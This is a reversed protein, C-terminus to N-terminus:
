MRAELTFAVRDTDLNPRPRSSLLMSYLVHQAGRDAHQQSRGSVVWRTQM